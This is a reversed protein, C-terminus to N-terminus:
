VETSENLDVERHWLYRRNYQRYSEMIRPYRKSLTAVLTRWQGRSKLKESAENLIKLPQYFYGRAVAQSFDEQQAEEGQIKFGDPMRRAKISALYHLNFGAVKQRDYYTVLLYPRPDTHWKTYILFYREGLKYEM